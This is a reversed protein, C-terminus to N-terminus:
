SVSAATHQGRSPSPLPTKTAWTSGNYSQNNPLANVSSDFGGSVYGTASHTACAAGSRGPSPISGPTSWTHAGANYKSITQTTGGFTDAGSIVYASSSADPLYVAAGRQFYYDSGATHTPPLTSDDSWTDAGPDYRMVTGFSTGPVLGFGASERAASYIMGGLSWSAATGQDSFTNIGTRITYADTAFRYRYNRKAVIPFPIAPTSQEYLFYGDDGGIVGGGMRDSGNPTEPNDTKSAWTDTGATYQDNGRRNADVGVCYIKGAGDEAFAIHAGTTTAIMDTRSSWADADPDYADNDSAAGLGGMAFIPFDGCDCESAVKDWTYWCNFMKCCLVLSGEELYSGSVLDCIYAYQDVLSYTVTQQGAELTFKVNTAKRAYFVNAPESPYAEDEGPGVQTVFFSFEPAARQEQTMRDSPMPTYDSM